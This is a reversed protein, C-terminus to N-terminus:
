EVRRELIREKNEFSPELLKIPRIPLNNEQYIKLSDEFNAANEFLKNYSANINNKYQKELGAEKYQKPTWKSYFIGNLAWIEILVGGLLAYASHRMFSNSVLFKEGKKKSVNRNNILSGVPLVKWFNKGVYKAGDLAKRGLGKYQTEKKEM